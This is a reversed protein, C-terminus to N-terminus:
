EACRYIDFSMAGDTPPEQAVISDGGMTAARNKALTVLEEMVTDEGRTIPGVKHKVTATTTGLKKCATVNFSKVLTVESSERTPEVWTCAALSIILLPLAYFHSKM